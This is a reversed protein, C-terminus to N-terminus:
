LDWEDAPESEFEEESESLSAEDDLPEDDPESELEDDPDFELPERELSLSRLRRM